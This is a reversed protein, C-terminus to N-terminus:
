HINVEEDSDDHLDLDVAQRDHVDVGCTVDEEM